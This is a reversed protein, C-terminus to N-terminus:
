RRKRYKTNKRIFEARKRPEEKLFKEYNCLLKLYKEDSMKHDEMIIRHELERLALDEIQNYQEITVCYTQNGQRIEIYPELDEIEDKEAIIAEHELEEVTRNDESPNENHQAVHKLEHALLARGEETEPRYKGDRFYIDYGIAFALANQGRALQDSNYGVHITANGIEEDHRAEQVKIMVTELPFERDKTDHFQKYRSIIRDTVNGEPDFKKQPKNLNRINTLLFSNKDKMELALQYYDHITRIIKSKKNVVADYLSIKDSM